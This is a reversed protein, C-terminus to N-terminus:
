EPAAAFAPQAPGFAAIGLVASLVLGRRLRRSCTKMPPDESGTRARDSRLDAAGTSSRFRAGLCARLVPPESRSRGPVPEDRGAGAAARDLVDLALGAVGSAVGGVIKGATWRRDGREDLGSVAYYVRKVKGGVPKIPVCWLIKEDPVCWYTRAAIVEIM